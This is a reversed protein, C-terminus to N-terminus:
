LEEENLKNNGSDNKLKDIEDSAWYNMRKILEIDYQTFETSKVCCYSEIDQYTINGDRSGNYLETFERFLFMFCTPPDIEHLNDYAHNCLFARVGM